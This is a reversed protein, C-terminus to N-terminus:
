TPKLMQKKVSLTISLSVMKESFVLSQSTSPRPSIYISKPENEKDIGLERFKNEAVSYSWCSFTNDSEWGDVKNKTKVAFRITGSTETTSISSAVSSAMDVEFPVTLLHQTNDRKRIVVNLKDALTNFPKRLRSPLRCEGRDSAEYCLLVSGRFFACGPVSFFQDGHKGGSRLQPKLRHEGSKANMQLSWFSSQSPYKMDPYTTACCTM